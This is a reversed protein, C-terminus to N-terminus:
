MREATTNLDTHTLDPIVKRLLVEGVRIQTPTLDPWISSHPWFGRRLDWREATTNLDTHTLDPIVKRLLVEGVRIQTPTLDLEGIFGRSHRSLISARDTGLRPLGQDCRDGSAT